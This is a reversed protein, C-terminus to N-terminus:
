VGTYRIGSYDEEAWLTSRRNRRDWREELLRLNDEWQGAEPERTRILAAAAAVAACHWVCQAAYKADIFVGKWLPSRRKKLLQTGLVILGVALVAAVYFVEGSILDFPKALVAATLLCGGAIRIGAASAAAFGDAERALRRQEGRWARFRPLDAEAESTEVTGAAEFYDPFRERLDKELADAAKLEEWSEAERETEALGNILNAAQSPPLHRASAQARQRLQAALDGKSGSLPESGQM